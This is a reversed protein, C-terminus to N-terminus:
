DWDPPPSTMKERETVISDYSKKTIVNDNDDNNYVPWLFNFWFLFTFWYKKELISLINLVKLIHYRYCTGLLLVVGGGWSRVTQGALGLTQHPGQVQKRAASLIEFTSSCTPSPAVKRTGRFWKETKGRKKALCWVLVTSLLILHQQETSIDGMSHVNEGAVAWWFWSKEIRAVSKLSQFLTVASM